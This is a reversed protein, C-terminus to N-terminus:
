GILVAQYRTFGLGRVDSAMQVNLSGLHGIATNPSYQLRTHTRSTTHSRPVFAKPQPRPFLPGDMETVCIQPAGPREQLGLGESWAARIGSSVPLIQLGQRARCIGGIEPPFAWPIAYCEPVCVDGLRGLILKPVIPLLQDIKNCTSDHTGFNQFRGGGRSSLM